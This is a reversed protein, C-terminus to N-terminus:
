QGAAHTEGEASPLEIAAHREFCEVLSEALAFAFTRRNAAHDRVGPFPTEVQIAVTEPDEGVSGYRATNYGGSFYKSEGAHPRAPSPVSPYGRKELEGGLSSKGRLREVFPDPSTAKWRAISTRPELADFSPGSEKLQANALLYGLEINQEPHSHGHIDLYIWAGRARAEGIAAHFARWTREAGPNGATGTLLDRNCDVKIRKLHCIVLHPRKGTVEHIARAIERALLDTNSDSRLVGERRDPIEPPALRGGHPAAIVIPLTGPVYEVTRSASFRSDSESPSAKTASPQEDSWVPIGCIGLVLFIGLVEWTRVKGALRMGKMQDRSGCIAPVCFRCESLIAKERMTGTIDETADLVM